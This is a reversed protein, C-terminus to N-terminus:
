YVNLIEQERIVAFKLVKHDEGGAPLQVTVHAIYMGSAVPVRDQNQLEWRLFESNNDKELKRVLQGALNFIRITCKTPPLGAFTVFTEFRGTEAPNFAYYPNPFVSIKKVSAKQLALDSYPAIASFVFKDDVTNPKTTVLRFITGTEPLDQNYPANSGGNWNVLVIRALVEDGILDYSAAPATMNTLDLSAVWADYGATGPTMDVPQYWYVWDTFPDNDAGSGSHDSGENLNFANNDDTDYIYPILRYDDSPDDPTNMGICWLEFPVPVVADDQFARVAYGGNETFRMEWDFPILRSFDDNRPSRSLFASYSGRTGNDGTHIAWHGAGVQQNDTIYGDPDATTPVPFGQWVLGAAEIPDLPGNANAVCQFSKFDLPAGVVRPQFGHVIPYNDDGSQNTQDKLLVQGTTLDKLTWETVGDSDKDTFTVEYQHGTLATKNIVIPYVAGDSVGIHSYGETITDGLAVKYETGFPKKPICTFIQPKSELAAPLFGPVKSHSYATVAFYYEQGNLLKDKDLVYDRTIEIYRQIGSNSGFQVPIDLVLGLKTDVGETLIITPDSERDFTAVRVADSLSSSKTPLQYINYGEFEYQGPQAVTNEIDKVRQLESGWDLIIKGDLEAVHVLPPLPPKPVQFLADFTNQVFKDNFKMVSISSFRDAGQGVVFGVVIDQTDGPAMTFPGSCLLMRRDGPPFSYDTGLGDLLGTGAVPDGSLPFHTKPAGPPLPYYKYAPFSPQWGQYMRYWERGGDYNSGPDSIPSGASFWAFATMPLNKYGDRYKLDFVARGGEEPVIPGALFDYGAAPVVQGVARYEADIANGNYVYGMSRTTDCGLLDESYEGLDPDSWQAVYMSDIYFAGLTSGDGAIDVGGKNIMRYRTFYINGLADTRKYGWVTRQIEFGMPESGEMALIADRDLDNYANWLVQDAPSNPDAGAVGPEDWGQAILSDVTFNEGFPPPPQYGPEGNREIYPAGLDVPWEQWDKEYQNYIEQIRDDSVSAPNAWQEFYEAADQRLEEASMSYYDRRIRWVRARPDGPDVRKATAGFGEIWGASTGNAYDNGGMRIVQDYPAPQTFAADKYCMGGWKFGDKYIVWCSGRPYYVGNDGNPSHNSEGNNEVWTWLNNINLIQYQGSLSTKALARDHLLKAEKPTEKAFSSAGVMMVVLAIATILITIKRM